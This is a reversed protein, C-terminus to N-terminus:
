GVHETRKSQKNLNKKDVPQFAFDQQYVRTKTDNFPM